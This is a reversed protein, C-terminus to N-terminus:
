RGKTKTKAKINKLEMSEIFFGQGLEETFVRVGLTYWTQPTSIEVIKRAYISEGAYVANDYTSVNETEEDDAYAGGQGSNVKVVKPNKPKGNCILQVYFNNVYNTNLCLLLPTKQKKLNSNSGANIFTTQYENQYHIDNFGLSGGEIYIQNLCGSHVANHILAITEIPQERRQTWEQHLYDYIYIKDDILCWIENRKDYICSYLKMEEVNSFVSQIEIAVPGQPRTQGTTDTASMYYINKQNNDYFFLYQDHKVISSYSMCGLGALTTLKSNDKDNPTTNLLYCEDKSFIYLGGTYSFVANIKKNFDIYWSDAVDQPDENWTYIDNQHSSHVGYESAVVLFGNWETMSIFSIDRGLYDKPTITKVVDGYSADAEFCVTKIEKGNTFVFVDYATSSMTLGNCKGTISLGDIIKEFPAIPGKSFLAGEESNEAYVFIYTINDQVSSFIGKIQYGIPLSYKLINGEASKLAVGSGIESSVLEINQAKIASIAGGANIGNQERIGCFKEFILPELAVAM